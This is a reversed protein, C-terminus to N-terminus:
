PLHVRGAAKALGTPARQGLAHAIVVPVGKAQQGVQQQKGAWRHLQQHRV